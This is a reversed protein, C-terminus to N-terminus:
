VLIFCLGFFCASVTGIEAKVCLGEDFLSLSLCLRRRPGLDWFTLLHSSLCYYVSNHFESALYPIYAGRKGRVGTILRTSPPFGFFFASASFPLCGPTVGLCLRTALTKTASSSFLSPSTRDQM